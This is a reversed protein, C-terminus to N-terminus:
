DEGILRSGMDAADKLQQAAAVFNGNSRSIWSADILLRVLLPHDMAGFTSHVQDVAAAMQTAAGAYDDQRHLRTAAQHMLLTKLVSQGMEGDIESLLTQLKEVATKHDRTVEHEWLIYLMLTLQTEIHKAGLQQARQQLAHRL